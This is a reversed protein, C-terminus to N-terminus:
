PRCYGIGCFNPVKWYTTASSDWKGRASTRAFPLQALSIIAFSHIQLIDVCLECPELGDNYHIPRSLEQFQASIRADPKGERLSNLMNIFAIMHTPWLDSYSTLCLSEDRQRFINTLRHVTGVDSAEFCKAWSRAEFAFRVPTGHRGPVPPLQCFDGSLVLQRIM